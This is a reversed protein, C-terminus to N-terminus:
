RQGQMARAHDAATTTISDPNLLTLEGVEVGGGVRLYPCGEALKVAADLDSVTVISYGGLVTDTASSGLTRREFVPNGADVLSSGLGDLYAQWAAAMEPSAVASADKPARYTFVFNPM